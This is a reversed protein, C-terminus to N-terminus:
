LNKLELTADKSRELYNMISNIITKTSSECGDVRLDCWNTKSTYAEQLTEITVADIMKAEEENQSRGSPNYRKVRNLFIDYNQFSHFQQLVLDEFESIHNTYVISNLLPADTVIVEVKGKLRWLRHQQKGFVYIQNTLVHNSQQWTMDKAYETALEANIGKEKLCAFIRAAMTSKGSGPGGYLNVVLTQM